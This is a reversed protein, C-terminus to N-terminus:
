CNDRRWADVRANRERILANALVAPDVDTGHRQIGDVVLDDSIFLHHFWRTIGDYIGDLDLLMGGPAGSIEAAKDKVLYQVQVFRNSENLTFVVVKERALREKVRENWQQICALAEKSFVYPPPVSRVGVREVPMARRVNTQPHLYEFEIAARNEGRREIIDEQYKANM